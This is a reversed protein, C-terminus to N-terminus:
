AVPTGTTATLEKFRALLRATVPGIKGSGIVYGDMKTVPVCEAATGTLFCEDACTVTYRNMTREEAPIGLENCIELVVRRTIGDLAGDTVPPTFVTGNKVIFINDGTCEAVNGAENLMLAEAVGMRVAEMKALINNLYNLSKVQPCVMDPRNRRVSSTILALGNEYVSPDYLAIKDAIIYVSANKCNFPSLGLNGVGRTVVLRIYGDSLGSAAVTECTAHIIEDFAYPIDLLLYRASDFLRVIHDELRFVRGNYFRIGEFIGDGYLTGHDFVSLKAETEDVLKGDLWIKM